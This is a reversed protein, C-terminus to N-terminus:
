TRLDAPETDDLHRSAWWAFLGYVIIAVIPVLLPYATYPKEVAWPGVSLSIKLMKKDAFLKILTAGLLGHVFGFAALNRFRDEMAVYAFITGLIGTALVLGYSDVHIVAFLSGSLTAILMRKRDRSFFYAWIAGAPASFGICGLLFSQPIRAGYVTCLTYYAAPGVVAAAAAAGLLVILLRRVGTRVNAPSTSPGFAKRLRTAFFGTFLFQQLLGWFMHAGADLAHDPWKVNKFAKPGQYSYAIAIAYALLVLALIFAFGFSSLFNDYRVACTALIAGVCTSAVAIAAWQWAADPEIRYSRPLRFFKAADPWDTLCFVIVGVSIALFAIVIGFRVAGRSDRFLQWTRRPTSLGLTELSDGHWRHSGFLVWAFIAFILGNAIPEVFRTGGLEGWGYGLPWAILLGICAVGFADLANLRRSRLEREPENATNLLSPSSM